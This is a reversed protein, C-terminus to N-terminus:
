AGPLPVDEWEGHRRKWSACSSCLGHAHAQTGKEAIPEVKCDLCLVVGDEGRAIQPDEISPPLGRLKRAVVNKIDNSGPTV